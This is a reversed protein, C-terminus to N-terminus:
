YLYNLQFLSLLSIVDLSEKVLLYATGILFKCIIVWKWQVQGLFDACYNLREHLVYFYLMNFKWKNMHHTRCLFTNYAVSGWIESQFGIGQSLTTAHVQLKLIGQSLITAHAQLKLMWSALYSPLVIELRTHAVYQTGPSHERWFWVRSGVLYFWLFSLVIGGFGNGAQVYVRYFFKFHFLNM